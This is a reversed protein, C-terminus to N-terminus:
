TVDTLIPVGGPVPVTKADSGARVEDGKAFSLQIVNRMNTHHTSRSVSVLNTRASGM